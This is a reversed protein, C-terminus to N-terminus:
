KKIEFIFTLRGCQEKPASMDQEFIYRKAYDEAQALVGKDRITSHAADFKAYVVTGARNVCLNVVAKGQVVAIQAVNAREIVKRNFLGDGAFDGWQLGKGDNGVGTKSGANGTGTGSGGPFTGDDFPNYGSGDEKEGDPANGSGGTPSEGQGSGAGKNGGFDFSTPAGKETVDTEAVHWTIKQQMAPNPKEKFAEVRDVEHHEVVDLPDEFFRDSKQSKNQSTPIFVEPAADTTMIERSPVPMATSPTAPTVNALAVQERPTQPQEDPAASESSAAAASAGSQKSSFDDEMIPPQEFNITIAQLYDPNDPTDTIFPLLALLLILAHVFITITWSRRKDESKQQQIDIVMHHPPEPLDQAM